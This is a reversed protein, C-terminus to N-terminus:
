IKTALYSCQRISHEDTTPHRTIASGSGILQHKGPSGDLAMARHFNIVKTQIEPFKLVEFIEVTCDHTTCHGIHRHGDIKSKVL